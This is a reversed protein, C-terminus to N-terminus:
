YDVSWDSSHHEAEAQEMRHLGTEFADVCSDCELLISHAEMASTAQIRYYSNNINFNSELESLIVRCDSRMNCAEQPCTAWNPLEKKLETLKRDWYWPKRKKPDIVKVWDSYIGDFDIGTIINGEGTVYTWDHRWEDKHGYGHVFLCRKYKAQLTAIYDKHTNRLDLYDRYEGNHDFVHYIGRDLTFPQTTVPSQTAKAILINIMNMKFKETSNINVAYLLANVM